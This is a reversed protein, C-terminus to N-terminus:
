VASGRYPAFPEKKILFYFLEGHPKYKKLVNWFSSTTRLRVVDWPDLLASAKGVPGKVCM